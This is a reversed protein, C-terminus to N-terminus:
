LLIIMCKSTHLRNTHQYSQIPSLGHHLKKQMDCTWANGMCVYKRKLISAINSSNSVKRIARKKGRERKNVNTMDIAGLRLDAGDWFGKRELADNEDSGVGEWMQNWSSSALFSKKSFKERHPTWESRRTMKASKVLVSRGMIMWLQPYSESHSTGTVQGVM